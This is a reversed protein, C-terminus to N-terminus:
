PRDGDQRVRERPREGSETRRSDTRHAPTTAEVVDNVHEILDEVAADRDKKLDSQLSRLRQELADVTQELEPIDQELTTRLNRRLRHFQEKDALDPATAYLPADAWPYAEIDSAMVHVATGNDGRNVDVIANDLGIVVPDSPDLNGAGKIRHIEPGMDRVQLRYPRHWFTSRGSYVVFAAEDADAAELSRYEGVYETASGDMWIVLREENAQQVHFHRRAAYAGILIWATNEALGRLLPDRLLNYFLTNTWVSVLVLIAGGLLAFSVITRFRLRIRERLSRRTPDARDGPQVTEELDAIEDDDIRSKQPETRDAADRLREFPM